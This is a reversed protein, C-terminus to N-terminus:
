TWNAAVRVGRKKAYDGIHHRHEPTGCPVFRVLGSKEVPIDGLRDSRQSVESGRLQNTEVSCFKTM